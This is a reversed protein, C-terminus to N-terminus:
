DMGQESFAIYVYDYNRREVDGLDRQGKRKM